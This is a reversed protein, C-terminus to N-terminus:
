WFPWLYSWLILWMFISDPGACHKCHPFMCQRAPIINPGQKRFGWYTATAM